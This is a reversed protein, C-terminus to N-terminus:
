TAFLWAFGYIQYRIHYTTQWASIFICPYDPYSFLMSMFILSVLLVCIHWWLSAVFGPPIDSARSPSNDEPHYYSHITHYTSLWAFGYIQYRIHYTTQWASIFICCNLCIIVSNTKLGVNRTSDLDSLNCCKNADNAKNIDQVGRICCLYLLCDFSGSVVCPYDPYSFLMSM